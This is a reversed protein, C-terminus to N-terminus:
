ELTWLCPSLRNCCHLIPFIWPRTLKSKDFNTKSNAPSRCYKNTYPPYFPFPTYHFSFYSFFSNEKKRKNNLAIPLLRGHQHYALKPFHSSFIYKKKKDTEEYGCFCPLFVPGKREFIRLNLLLRYTRGLHNLWLPSKTPNQLHNLSDHENQAAKKGNSINTGLLSLIIYAKHNHQDAHLAKSNSHRWFSM